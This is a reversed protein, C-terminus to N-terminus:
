KDSVGNVQGGEREGLIETSGLVDWCLWCVRVWGM